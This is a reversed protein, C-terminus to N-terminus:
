ASTASYLTGQLRKSRKKPVLCPKTSGPLPKTQMKQIDARQQEIKEKSPAALTASAVCIICFSL